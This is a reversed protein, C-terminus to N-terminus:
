VRERCSARGIEELKCGKDGVANLPGTVETAFRHAQELIMGVEEEGWDQYPEKGLLEGLKHQEFLVFRFERLDAKYRNLPQSM